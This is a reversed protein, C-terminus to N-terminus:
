KNWLGTANNNILKKYQIPQVIRIPIECLLSAFLIGAIGVSLWMSFYYAVPLYFITQFIVLITILRIKGTGNLFLIYPSWWTYVITQICLALSLSFPIDVSPGVWIKYAHNSVLLMLISGISLLSALGKYKKMTNKIWVYDKKSYADTISSWLPATFIAFVMILVQFYKHGINYYTVEVPSFFQAIIFNTASILVLGSIQIIFFNIGLSLLDKSLKLNICSLRPKFTKYEHTFSYISFFMYVLVPVISLIAGAIVLTALSFYNLVLIILFGLATMIVNILNNLSPRQDAFYIVSIIQFIFRIAFFFLAILVVRQLVNESVNHTNFVNQWSIFPTIFIVIIALPLFVLMFIAYTTSVYEQARQYDELALAEGLRNRLGNALGVDFFNMWSHFSGLVLWIGYEEKGLSNILLPVYALNLVVSLFKYLFSSVINKKAKVSRPHGRTIRDKIKLRIKRIMSIIFYHM